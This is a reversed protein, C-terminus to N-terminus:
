PNAENKYYQYIEFQSRIPKAKNKVLTNQIPGNLRRAKVNDKWIIDFVDTIQRQLEVDYIPTAVEVRNEINRTM